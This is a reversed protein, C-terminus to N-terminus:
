LCSSAGLQGPFVESPHGSHTCAVHTEAWSDGGAFWDLSFAPLPPAIDAKDVLQTM